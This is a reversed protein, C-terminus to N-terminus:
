NYSMYIIQIHNIDGEAIKKTEFNSSHANRTARPVTLAPSRLLNRAVSYVRIFGRIKV